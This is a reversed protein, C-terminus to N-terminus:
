QNAVGQDANTRVRRKSIGGGHRTRTCQTVRPPGPELPVRECDAARGGEARTFCRHSCRCLRAQECMSRCQDISFNRDVSIPGMFHKGTPSEIWEGKPLWIRETALGSEKDAANDGARGADPRWVCVREQECLSGRRGALRLLAAESVGCRTTLGDHKQIPTLSWLTAFSFHRVCFIPTRNRILGCRRECGSEQYHTDAPHASPVSSCGARLCSQSLVGPMHGGIDHSWYAYGRQSGNGHVVAPIRTIGLEFDHRRLLRNSLSSQSGAGAISFCLGSEERQQDTFHVYNLWWTPM